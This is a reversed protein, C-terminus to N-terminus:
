VVQAIKKIKIFCLTPLYGSFSSNESGREHMERKIRVMTRQSTESSDIRVRQVEAKTRPPVKDCNTGWDWCSLLEKWVWLIHFWLSMVLRSSKWSIGQLIQECMLSDSGIQKAYAFKLYKIISIYALIDEWLVEHQWPMVCNCLNSVSTRKVSCLAKGQKVHSLSRHLYLFTVIWKNTRPM